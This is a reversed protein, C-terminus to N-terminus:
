GHGPRHRLPREHSLHTDSFLSMAAVAGRVLPLDGVMSWPLPWPRDLLDRVADTFLRVPALADCQAQYAYYIM